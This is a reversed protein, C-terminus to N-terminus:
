KLNDLYNILMDLNVRDQGDSYWTNPKPQNAKFLDEVNVNLDILKFGNSDKQYISKIIQCSGEPIKKLHGLEQDQSYIEYKITAGDSSVSLFSHVLHKMERVECFTHTLLKDNDCASRSHRNYH